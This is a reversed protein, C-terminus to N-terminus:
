KKCLAFAFFLDTVKLSAASAKIIIGEFIGQVAIRHIVDFVECSAISTEKTTLRRKSIGNLSAM